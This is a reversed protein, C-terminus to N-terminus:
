QYTWLPRNLRGEQWQNGCFPARDAVRCNWLLWAAECSQASISEEAPYLFATVGIEVQDYLDNIHAMVM